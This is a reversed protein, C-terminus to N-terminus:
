FLQHEMRMSIDSKHRMKPFAFGTWGIEEVFGAPEHGSKTCLWWPQSSRQRSENSTSALSVCPLMDASTNRICVVSPVCSIACRQGCGKQRISTYKASAMATTMVHGNKRATVSRQTYAFSTITAEGNTPSYWQMPWPSLTFMTFWPRKTLTTFWECACRGARAASRASLPLDTMTTPATDLGSIPGDVLHIM